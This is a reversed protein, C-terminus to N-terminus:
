RHGDMDLRRRRNRIIIRPKMKRWIRLPLGHGKARPDEEFNM